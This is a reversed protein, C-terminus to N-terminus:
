FVIPTATNRALDFHGITKLNSILYDFRLLLIIIIIIMVKEKTGTNSNSIQKRPRQQKGLHIM